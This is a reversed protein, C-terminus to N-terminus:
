KNATKKSAKPAKKAAKPAKAPKAKPAKHPKAGAKARKATHAKHKGAAGEQAAPPKSPAGGQDEALAVSPVLLAIALPLVRILSLKM